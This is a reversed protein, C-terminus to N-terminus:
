GRRIAQVMQDLQQLFLSRDKEDMGEHLAAMDQALTQAAAFSGIM